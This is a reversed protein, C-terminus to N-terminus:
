GGIGQMQKELYEKFDVANNKVDGPVSVKDGKYEISQSSTSESKSKMATGPNQAAEGQQSHDTEVVQRVQAKKMEFSKEDIWYKFEFELVKQGAEKAKELNEEDVLFQHAQDGSLKAHVIYAGDERTMSLNDGLSKMKDIQKQFAEEQEEETPEEIEPEEEASEEKDGGSKTWTGDERLTYLVDDVFYSETPTEQNEAQVEGNMTQEHVTTTGKSHSAYPEFNRVTTEKTTSDSSQVIEGNSEMESKSRTTSTVTHTKNKNKEAAERAKTLVEELTLDKGPLLGGGGSAGDGSCGALVFIAAMSLFLLKRM